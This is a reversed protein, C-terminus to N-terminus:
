TVTATARQQVPLIDSTLTRERERASNPRSPHPISTSILFSFFFSFLFSRFLRVFSSSFQLPTLDFSFLLFFYSFFRSLYSLHHVINCLHIIQDIYLYISLYSANKLRINSISLIYIPLRLFLLVILCLLMCASLRAPM